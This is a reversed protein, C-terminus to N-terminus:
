GGGTAQEPLEAYSFVAIPRGVADTQIEVPLRRAGTWGGVGMRTVLSGPSTQGSRTVAYSTHPDQAARIAVKKADEDILFAVRDPDGLAERVPAGMLVSPGGPGARLSISVAMMGGRNWQKEVLEFGM